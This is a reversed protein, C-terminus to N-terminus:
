DSLKDIADKTKDAATDIKETYRGGTKDDAVDATKEIGQKVKDDHKGVLHRARDLISM